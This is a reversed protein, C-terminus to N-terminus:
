ASLLDSLSSSVHEKESLCSIGDVQGIKIALRFFIYRLKLIYFSASINIM